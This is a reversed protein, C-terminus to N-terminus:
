SEQGRSDTRGVKRLTKKKFTNRELTTVSAESTGKGAKAYDYARSDTEWCPTKKERCCSASPNRGGGPRRLFSPVCSLVQERFLGSQFRREPLFSADGCEPSFDGGSLLPLDYKKSTPPTPTRLRNQATRRIGTNREQCIRIRRRNELRKKQKTAFKRDFKGAVAACDGPVPDQHKKKLRPSGSM